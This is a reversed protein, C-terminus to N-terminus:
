KKKKIRGTLLFAYYLGVAVADARDYSEPMIKGKKGTVYPFIVGLHESVLAPMDEKKPFIKDKKLGHRISLVSFLEPSKNLYDYAALCIMRNFTTLMIITNSTSRGGMFSIINEIGILDPKSEVIINSIKDRTDAIREIIGGDKIPKLHNCSVFKIEKTDMDVDLIAYGTTTSSIDFSLIRTM